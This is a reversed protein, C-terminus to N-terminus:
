NKLYVKPITTCNSYLMFFLIFKAKSFVGNKILIEQKQGYLKMNYGTEVYGNRIYFNKRRLRIGTSDLGEECPEISVIIRNKPHLAQVENLIQSGYGKNRHSEDVAFFMIFTQRGMSAMYVFGCLVDEDYFALFETNWLYSMAIMMWFPMREKKPFASIYISKIKSKQRSRRVNETIM